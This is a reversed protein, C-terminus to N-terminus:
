ETEGETEDVLADLVFNEVTKWAEFFYIDEQNVVEKMYTLMHKQIENM